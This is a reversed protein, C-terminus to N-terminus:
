DFILSVLNFPALSLLFAERSGFSQFASLFVVLCDFPFGLGWRRALSCWFVGFLFAVGGFGFGIAFVRALWFCGPALVRFV